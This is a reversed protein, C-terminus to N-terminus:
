ADCIIKAYRNHNNLNYGEKNRVDFNDGLIKVQTIDSLNATKWSPLQGSSSFGSIQWYDV